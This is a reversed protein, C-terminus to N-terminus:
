GKMYDPIMKEILFRPDSQAFREKDKMSGTMANTRLKDLNVKEGGGKINKTDLATKKKLTNIQGKLNQTNAAVSTVKGLAKSHEIALEIAMAQGDIAKQMKPYKQYIGKAIEIVKSYNDNNLEGDATLREITKNAENVQNSVFKQPATAITKEIRRELKVLEALKSPDDRSTEKTVRVQILSDELADESMADLQRQVDDVPAATQQEALKQELSKIRATMQDFRPQIKSKAVVEEQTDDQNEEQTQEEDAQEEEQESTPPELKVADKRSETDQQTQLDEDLSKFANSGKIKELVNSQLSEQAELQQKSEESTIETPEVQPM